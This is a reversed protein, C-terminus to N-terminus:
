YEPEEISGTTNGNADKILTHKVRKPQKPAEAKPVNVVPPKAAPVNVNVQAAEVTVPANVVPPKQNAIAEAVKEHSAAVKDSAAAIADAVGTLPAMQEEITKVIAATNIANAGAAHIVTDHLEELFEVPQLTEILQGAEDTHLERLIARAEDPTRVSELAASVAAARPTPSELIVDGFPQVDALWDVSEITWGSSKGKQELKEWVGYAADSLGETASLPAGYIRSIQAASKYMETAIGKRRFGSNVNPHLHAFKKGYKDKFIDLSAQGVVQGGVKVEMVYRVVDGKRETVKAEFEGDVGKTTRFSKQFRQGLEPCPGPKGGKGGCELLAEVNGLREGIAEMARLAAGDTQLEIELLDVDGDFPEDDNISEIVDAETSLFQAIKKATVKLPNHGKKQVTYFTAGAAVDVHPKGIKYGREGLLDTAQDINLKAKKSIYRYKKGKYVGSSGKETGADARNHAKVESRGTPCPGPTGGKGGCELLESEIAPQAGSPVEQPAEPKDGDKKINELEADFDRGAETAATRKSLTGLGVEIAATQAQETKNRTAVAPPTVVIDVLQEIQEYSLHFQDFYGAEWAIRVAKWLMSAFGPQYKRQDKERAKVFPSEAVLTSSYNANSSDASIMYEPMCWRSGSYRLLAQIVNIFAPARESGMPGPKYELGANIDLISGPEFKQQYRTRSGGTPLSQTRTDYAQTARLGSIQGSTTGAAHQRIFAIAAQVATGAATNRLVKEAHGMWSMVAYYDSVGRKVGMPVNRKFHEVRNATVYDYDSGSGNYAFHYGRVDSCDGKPTHVGFSWSSAFDIGLWDELDRGFTQPDRLWDPETFVARTRWGNPKLQLIAEGDERSRDHIEGQLAVGDNDDEFKAIVRQVFAVLQEPPKQGEAAQAKSTFGSSITYTNLNELINIGVPTSSSLLRGTARIIALDTETEFVPRMKGDERDDPRTMSYAARGGGFAQWGPSDDYLYERPDLMDGWGEQLALKPLEALRMAESLQSELQMTELQLRASEHRERLSDIPITDIM